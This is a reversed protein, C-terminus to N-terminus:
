SFAVGVYPEDTTLMGATSTSLSGSRQERLWAMKIIMIICLITSSPKHILGACLMTLMCLIYHTYIYICLMTLMCLIYHTYIYLTYIYLM